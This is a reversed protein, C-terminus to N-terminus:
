LFLLATGRRERQAKITQELAYKVKLLAFISLVNSTIPFPVLSYNSYICYCPVFNQSAYVNKYSSILKHESLRAPNLTEFNIIGYLLINFNKQRCKM